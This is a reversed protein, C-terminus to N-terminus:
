RVTEAFAKADLWRQYVQPEIASPDYQKPLESSM